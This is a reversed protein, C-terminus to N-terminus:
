LILQWVKSNELVHHDQSVASSYGDKNVYEVFGYGKSMGTQNSQFIYLVVTSYAERTVMSEVVTMVSCENRTVRLMTVEKQQKFIRLSCM